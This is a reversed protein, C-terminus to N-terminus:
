RLLGGIRTSACARFTTTRLNCCLIRWFQTPEELTSGVEENRFGVQGLPRPRGLAGFAAEDLVAPRVALDFMPLLFVLFLTLMSQSAM